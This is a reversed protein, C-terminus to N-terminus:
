PNVATVTKEEELANIRAQLMENKHKLGALSLIM